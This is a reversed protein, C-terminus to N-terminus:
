ARIRRGFRIPLVRVRHRRESRTTKQINAAAVRGATSVTATAAGPLPTGVFVSDPDVASEVALLREASGHAARVLVHRPDIRPVSRDGFRIM